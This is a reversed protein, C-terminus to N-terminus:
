TRAGGLQRTAPPSRRTWQPLRAAPPPRPGAPGARTASPSSATESRWTQPAGSIRRRCDLVTDALQIVAVDDAADYGVVNAGYTKGSGLDTVNISTAGEVVHNNTLVEGDSTLVIGTGAAPQQGDLTVNIDVLAPDVKAAISSVDTPGGTSSGNPSGSGGLGNSGSGPFPDGGGSGPFPTGSGPGSTNPTDSGGSPSSPAPSSSPSPSSTSWLADGIGIGAGMAGVVLGALAIHRLHRRPGSPGAPAPSGWAPPAWPPDGWRGGGPPVAWYAPDGLPFSGPYPQGAEPTAATGAPSLTARPSPVPPGQSGDSPLPGGPGKSPSVGDSDAPNNSASEESM